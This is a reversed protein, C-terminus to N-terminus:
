KLYSIVNKFKFFSYINYIILLFILYIKMFYYFNFINELIFILPLLLYFGGKSLMFKIIHFLFNKDKIEQNINKDKEKNKSFLKYFDSIGVFLETFTTILFLIFYILSIERFVSIKYIYILFFLPLTFWLLFDLFEGKQSTKKRLRAVEGDIVDLFYIFYFLIIALFILNLISNLFLLIFPSVFSLFAMFSTIQNATISTNKVIFTSFYISIPRLIYFAIFEEKAKPKQIEIRLNKTKKSDFFLSPYIKKM